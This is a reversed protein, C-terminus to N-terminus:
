FADHVPLPLVVYPQTVASTRVKSFPKALVGNFGASRYMGISAPDVNGTMAIIPITVGSKRLEACV